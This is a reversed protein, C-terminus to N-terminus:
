LTIFTILNNFYIDSNVTMLNEKPAITKLTFINSLKEILLSSLEVTNDSQFIAGNSKNILCKAGVKDSVITYCGAILAENIVAGFPEFQSPLVFLQAINYWAYLEKGSLKGCFEVNNDLFLEDVLKHLVTAQSGDGVIILKVNRENKVVLSFARILLDVSKVKELRGVYLIVKKKKLKMKDVLKLSLPISDLLKAKFISDDQIIPLYLYNCNIKSYKKKLIDIVEPNIVILGDIYILCIRRLKERIGTCSQAMIPSDDSTVFLSCGIFKKLFISVITNIGFEHSLIINPKFDLIIKLFSLDISRSGIMKANKVYKYNFHAMNNVESLNFALKSQKVKGYWLYVMLDFHNSLFNYLDVRYSALFPHFILLKKKILNM